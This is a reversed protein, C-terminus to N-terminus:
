KSVSGITILSLILGTVDNFDFYFIFELKNYFIIAISKDSSGKFFRWQIRAANLYFLLEHLKCNNLQFSCSNETGMFLQNEQNRLLIDFSNILGNKEYLEFDIVNNFFYYGLNDSGPGIINYDIGQKYSKLNIKEGIKFQMFGSLSVFNDIFVNMVILKKGIVKITNNIPSRGGCQRM